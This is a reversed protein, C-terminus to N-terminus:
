RAQIIHRNMM